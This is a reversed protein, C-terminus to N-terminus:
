LLDNGDDTLFFSVEISATLQNNINHSYSINEILGNFIRITGTENDGNSLKFTLDIDNNPTDGAVYGSANFGYLLYSGDYFVGRDDYSLLSSRYKNDTNIRDMGNGFLGTTLDTVLIELSVSGDIPYSLDRGYIFRNGFGYRSSRALNLSIQASQICIDGTLPHPAIPFNSNIEVTPDIGGNKVTGIGTKDSFSLGNVVGSSVGDRNGGTLNISPLTIYGTNLSEVSAQSARASVSVTPIDSVSMSLEYSTIQCDGFGVSTYGSLNAVESDSLSSVGLFDFGEDKNVIFYLNFTSDLDSFLSGTNYLGLALNNGFDETMSSLFPLGFVGSELTFNPDVYTTFSVEPEPSLMDQRVAYKSSGMSKVKVNNQGYNFVFSVDQVLPVYSLGSGDNIDTYFTPARQSFLSVESSNIRNRM